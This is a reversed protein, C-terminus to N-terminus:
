KSELILMLYTIQKGSDVKVWHPVNPPIQIIDGEAVKKSEGGTVSDANLSVTGGPIPDPVTKQNGTLQGGVVVTAEGSIVYILHGLTEHLEAGGGAIKHVIFVPHGNIAKLQLNATHSSLGLKAHLTEEYGKLEAPNWILFGPTQAALLHATALWLLLKMPAIRDDGGSLVM